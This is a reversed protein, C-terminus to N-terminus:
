IFAWSKRMRRDSQELLWDAQVKGTCITDSWDELGQPGVTDKQCVVGSQNIDMPSNDEPSDVEKYWEDAKQTDPELAWIRSAMPSALQSNSYISSVIAAMM